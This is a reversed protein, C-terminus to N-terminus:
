NPIRGGNVIITQGSVFASDDSLFYCFTGLLDDPRMLRGLPTRSIDYEGLVESGPTTTRGPAICNVRINKKGMENALARTLSIVAGKSAVYHAFGHSGTFATESAVTVISGGQDSMSAAAARACLFTGTINVALMRNWEDLPIEDYPRRNVLLAACTVLGDVTGVKDFLTAVQDADSVDCVVDGGALDVAVVDAGRSRLETTLEAGIGRGAGTVVLRKGSLTM